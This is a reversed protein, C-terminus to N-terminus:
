GTQLKRLSKKPTNPWKLVGQSSLIHKSNLRIESGTHVVNNTCSNEDLTSPTSEAVDLGFSQNNTERQEQDTNRSRASDCPNSGPLEPEESADMLRKLASEAEDKGGGIKLEAILQSTV